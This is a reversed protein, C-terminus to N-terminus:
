LIKCKKGAQPLRCVLWKWKKYGLRLLHLLCVLCFPALSSHLSPKLTCRPMSLREFCYIILMIKLKSMEDVCGRERGGIERSGLIYCSLIIHSLQKIRQFNWFNYDKEALSVLCPWNHHKLYKQIVCIGTEWFKWFLNLKLKIETPYQM